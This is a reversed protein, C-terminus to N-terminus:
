WETVGTDVYVSHIHEHSADQDVHVVFVVSESDKSTGLVTRAIINARIDEAIDNYALEKDTAKDFLEYYLIDNLLSDVKNKSRTKLYAAVNDRLENRTKLTDGFKYVRPVGKEIVVFLNDKTKDNTWKQKRDTRFLYNLFNQVHNEDSFGVGQNHGVRLGLNM